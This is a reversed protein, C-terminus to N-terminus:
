FEVAAEDAPAEVVEMVRVLPAKAGAPFRGLLKVRVTNGVTWVPLPTVNIDKDALNSRDALGGVDHYITGRYDGDVEACIGASNPVGKKLFLMGKVSVIRVSAILEEGDNLSTRAAVPAPKSAAEKAAEYKDMIPTAVVPEPEKAPAAKEVVVTATTEIVPDAKPKDVNEVVAAAGKKARPPPAQRQPVPDAVVAPADATGTVNTLEADDPIEDAATVGLMLEPM